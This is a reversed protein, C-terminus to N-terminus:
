STIGAMREAAEIVELVALGDDFTALRADGGSLAARHMERYTHDRDVNAAVYDAHMSGNEGVLLLERRTARDVSNMQVTAIPCRETKMVLAFADDSDIELSSFHGGVAGAVTIDGLLFRLTDIEHSLDRLVGGGRVRSASYSDRYDSGPRWKSLHQGVYAQAAILTDGRAFAALQETLPHFRMNYGVYSARFSHQTSLASHQTDKYLPKEVLVAGEFGFNALQEVSQRHAATENAIVVYEAGEIADELKVEGRRSVIAVECGLEALVRAHRAGISGHGVVVAKM